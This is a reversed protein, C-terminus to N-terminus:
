CNYRMWGTKHHKARFAEPHFIELLIEASDLLRPGPRNFYQNGKCIYVENNQVAKLSKWEQKNEFFFMDQLTREITFGCPAIVIKDPNQKVIDEFQIWPKSEDRFSNLGGTWEILTRTWHGAVMVPEIWEIHAVTPKDPLKDAQLCISEFAERMNSVLSEGRDYVDLANAIQLISELVQELSEPNLDIVTIEDQEIYENLAEQLEDTSVACVECQSQTIIHTPQLSRIREIDVHYIALAERLISTVERNIDASTGESRYKPSSCVPLHQVEAPYDCEHSRGSLQETLGLACVIETASPLLSIVRNESKMKKTMDGPVFM